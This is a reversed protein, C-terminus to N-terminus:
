RLSEGTSLYSVRGVKVGKLTTLRDAIRRLEAVEGKLVIIELCNHHDLHFHVTSLVTLYTDHQLATLRRSLDSSHHDYVISVAAVSEGGGEDWQNEVLRDRILDRIAESRNDYGRRAVLRDFAELLERDLSVGIREVSSM